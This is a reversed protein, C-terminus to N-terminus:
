KEKYLTYRDRGAEKSRYLADDAKKFLSEFNEDGDNEAIGISLTITPMDKIVLKIKRAEVCLKEALQQVTEIKEYGAVFLMFEDGGYRGVKMTETMENRLIETILLLIKDGEDHGLTDNVVKFYDIDLVLLAQHKGMINKRLDERIDNEISIKNPLNTFADKGLRKQLLEKEEITNRHTEKEEELEIEVLLSTSYINQMTKIAKKTADYYLKMNENFGNECNFRLDFDCLEQYYKLDFTTIMEKEKKLNMVQMLRECTEKNTKEVAVEFVNLLCRFVYIYEDIVEAMKAFEDIRQVLYEIGKDKNKTIENMKILCQIVKGELDDYEVTKLQSWYDVKDNNEAFAYLEIINLILQAILAREKFRKKSYKEYAMEIFTAATEYEELWVFLNGINNLVIWDYDYESHRTAIYYAQLYYQISKLYNAKESYEIGLSNNIKMTYFKNEGNKAYNLAKDLCTIAQDIGENDHISIARYFYYAALGNVDNDKIALEGLKKLANEKEESSFDVYNEIISLLKQYNEKEHYKLTIM